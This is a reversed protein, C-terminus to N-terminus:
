LSDSTPLTSVGGARGMVGKSARSASSSACLWCASPCAPGLLSLTVGKTLGTEATIKFRSLVFTAASNVLLLSTSVFHEQPIFSDQRKSQRPVDDSRDSSKSSMLLAHPVSFPCAAEFGIRDQDLSQVCGAAPLLLTLAHQLGGCTHLAAQISEAPSHAFDVQQWDLYCPLLSM